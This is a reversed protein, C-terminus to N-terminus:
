RALATWVCFATLEAWRDCGSHLALAALRGLPLAGSSASILMAGDPGPAVGIAKGGPQLESKLSPNASQEPFWKRSGGHLSEWTGGPMELCQKRLDLAHVPGTLQAYEKGYEAKCALLRHNSGM